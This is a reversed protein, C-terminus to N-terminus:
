DNNHKHHQYKRYHSQITLAAREPDSLHEQQGKSSSPREAGEGPRNRTSCATSTQSSRAVKASEKSARRSHTVYQVQWPHPQYALYPLREEQFLTSSLQEFARVMIFLATMLTALM